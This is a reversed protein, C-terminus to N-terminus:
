KMKEMASIEEQAIAAWRGLRWPQGDLTHVDKLIIDVNMGKTLSLTRRIDERIAGEDWRTTSVLTPNPKRNYVYERGIYETMKIEDAWPSVSVRRLNPIRRIIRWRKDLPECCGYCALGFRSIVPLQYPFIFEEFMEPSVGVTEQSESLGWMDCIRAPGGPYDGQPLQDTYGRGGSGIYDDENNPLLLGQQEHWDLMRQMDDRLFAMLGHLAEPNDLMAFMLQEMGILKILEQTMGTSWWYWGRRQVPLIGAFVDELRDRAAEGASKDLRWTRFRLLELAQGIDRVPPDWRRSGAGRGSDGIHEVLEVGYFDSSIHESFTIRPEIVMDDHINEYHYIALKLGTEVARAWEGECRLGLIPLLENMVGGTEVLIMPREVRLANLKRWLVRRAEMEPLSGIELVRKSLERLIMKEEPRPYEPM